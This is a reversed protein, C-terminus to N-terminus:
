LAPRVQVGVSSKTFRSSCSVCRRRWLGRHLACDGASRRRDRGHVLRFSDWDAVFGADGPIRVCPAFINALEDLRHHPWEVAFGGPLRDIRRYLIDAASRDSVFVGGRHLRLGARAHDRNRSFGTSVASYMTNLAGFVAGIAMVAAVLGGLVTILTTMTRSQKAYYDVERSVQVNLRPDATAADKFQQLADVSNLHLTVSQFVNTPRKYVDDLVRADVWVESDFASGGADFVGVM